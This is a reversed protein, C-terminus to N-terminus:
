RTIQTAEMLKHEHYVPENRREGWCVSMTDVMEWRLSNSSFKGSMKEGIINYNVKYGVAWECLNRQRGSIKTSWDLIAMLWVKLESM